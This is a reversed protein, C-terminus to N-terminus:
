KRMEEEIYKAVAVIEADKMMGKFPTMLGKGHYVQAVSEELSITSKTLDKSGNVGLAGNMGHCISCLKKFTAKANISAIDEDSVSAIIEKAKAIQEPPVTIKATQAEATNDSKSSTKPADRKIRRQPEEGGCSWLFTFSILVLLISSKKM